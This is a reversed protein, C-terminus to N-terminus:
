APHGGLRPAASGGLTLRNRWTQLKRLVRGLLPPVPYRCHAVKRVYRDVRWVMWRNAPMVAVHGARLVRRQGEDDEVEVEGEMVHVIEEIGFYWRFTGATCDWHATTCTGDPSRALEAMRAVPEGELIWEPPIPAPQLGQPDLKTMQDLEFLGSEAFAARRWAYSM